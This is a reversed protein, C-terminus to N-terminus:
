VRETRNRDAQEAEIREAAYKANLASGRKLTRYLWIGWFVCLLLTGISLGILFVLFDM